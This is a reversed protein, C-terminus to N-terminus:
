KTMLRRTCSSRPSPLYLNYKKIPYGSICMDKQEAFEAHEATLLVFQSQNAKNEGLRLVSTDGYTRTTFSSVNVQCQPFQSQKKLDCETFRGPIQREAEMRDTESKPSLIESKRGSAPMNAKNKGQRWDDLHGYVM